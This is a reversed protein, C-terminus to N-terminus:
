LVKLRRDVMPIVTGCKPCTIRDDKVTYLREVFRAKRKVVPTSCTPCRTNEHDTRMINGLYVYNLGEARAITLAEVLTQIPTAPATYHYDPHYRSLHYPIDPGLNNRIWSATAKLDESSDNFGPVVLTTIEIHIGLERALLLTDLVPQLKARSMRIYQEERIAKLDINIADLYPAITRLPEPNIYGNSVFVSYYGREKVAKSIDYAFEWGITPENYTFAVGSCTHRRILTLIRDPTGAERMAYNDPATQSIRWNQCYACKFNCGVAGFSLVSSGPYFHYLPKKEVPDPSVSSVRGYILSYLTGDINTRVGCVGVGDRPIICNHACLRCRVEKGERQEYFRAEKVFATQEM